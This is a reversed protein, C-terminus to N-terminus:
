YTLSQYLAGPTYTEAVHQCERENRPDSHRGTQVDLLRASGYTAIVAPAGPGQMGVGVADCTLKLGPLVPYASLTGDKYQLKIMGNVDWSSSFIPVGLTQYAPYNSVFVTTGAPLKPFQTRLEGIGAEEASYATNWIKSHRELVKVYAFGLLLGLLITLGSLAQVQPRAMSILAGIVGFVGYVMIVLGFGALANVRNTVGYVSPTYYPNAPIFMAWGVVTVALGGGALLLWSRLGWRNREPVRSRTALHVVLGVILVLAILVLVLTTREAGVPVLTRGLLTGGSTVIEQLHKFDASAGYSEHNTQTGVWLGGVLAVLLDIAWRGKAVRWGARLCYLVGFAAILPLTIEYTLISLLYLLAACAHLRWSRKQLGIVALWLGTSAFGISLTAQDATEWFRTSDFWPYVITLAAIPWAHFWPVGLTRLIGYLVGAVLIALSAAWALQYAMHTGFIFYTLPVYLVLVPRYLTTNAFYSLAHDLSPGGPPRLSGAGNSWDDLYFGGHLVHPAFALAGVVLLALWAVVLERMPPNRIALVAPMSAATSTGSMEVDPVPDKQQSLAM